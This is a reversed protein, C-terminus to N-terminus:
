IEGVRDDVTKMNYACTDILPNSPQLLFFLLTITCKSRPQFGTSHHKNTSHTNSCLGRASLYISADFFFFAWYFYAFLICWRSTRTRRIFASQWKFTSLTRIRSGSLVALGSCDALELEGVPGLLSHWFSSFAENIENSLHVFGLFLESLVSWDSYVAPLIFSYFSSLDVAALSWVHMCINGNQNQLLLTRMVTEASAFPMYDANWMCTCAISIIVSSHVEASQDKLMELDGPISFWM